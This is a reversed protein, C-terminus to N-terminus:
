GEPLEFNPDYPISPSNTPSDTAQQGPGATGRDRSILSIVIQGRVVDNDESNQRQLDLRQVSVCVHPLSLRRGRRFQILTGNSTSSPAATSTAPGCSTSAAGGGGGPLTNISNNSLSRSSCTISNTFSSLPRQTLIQTSMPTWTHNRRYYHLPSHHSLAAALPAVHCAPLSPSIPVTYSPQLPTRKSFVIPAHTSIVSDNHEDSSRDVEQDSHDSGINVDHSAVTSYRPANTNQAVSATILTSSPAGDSTITSSPRDDDENDSSTGATSSTSAVRSGSRHPPFSIAAPPPPPGFLVMPTSASVGLHNLNCPVSTAMRLNTRIRSLMAPDDGRRLPRLQAGVTTLHADFPTTCKFYKNCLFDLFLSPSTVLHVVTILLHESLAFGIGNKFSYARFDKYPTYIRTQGQHLFLVPYKNQKLQILICTDPDFSSFVIKRSGANAFVVQLIHDLNENVDFYNEMEWLDNIDLQPYKIEIDFGTNEDVVTLVKELTPFPEYSEEETEDDTIGVCSLDSSFLRMSQLQSLTLSKVPIEFLENQSKHKKKISYLAKVSFDHFIVPMKDKSLLVDFEVFDAGHKAAAAFSAITNEKLTSVQSYSAGMGRHGIDLSTDGAKKWKWHTQYTYEMTMVLGPCPKAVLFEVTIEGIPKHNFGIIPFKRTHQSEKQKFPLLHSSGIFRPSRNPEWVYFDLQFGQQQTDPMQTRFVIYNDKNYVIGYSGQIAPRCDDDSLNCFLVDDVSCPSPGDRSDDNDEDPSNCKKHDKEKLLLPKWLFLPHGPFSPNGYFCLTDLSLPTGYFCLTDLSLPTNLASFVKIIKKKFITNSYAVVLSESVKTHNRSDPSHPHPPISPISPKPILTHHSPHYPPSPFSPTTPHYPPCPFSPTTPHYPPCPFSPTTPHYPPCPFPPTTPHITHLAHSHPHPPITHLAHSNPHPPISPISPKPILTHHSPISPMPILTHHSPISPMPIPTHHSPHYPPCPFSPTTPHYPPCPFQPTTPNITHLAQSHPHPPISPISPKPILIHHSPHVSPKPILTHRSPHISPQVSYDMATCRISYTQERHKNKWMFIPNNHLRIQVECQNILWGKGVNEEGDYIGFTAEPLELNQEGSQISFHRPKINTEWKYITMGDTTDGLVQTIHGNSQSQSRQKCIFFRYHYTTNHNLATTTFWKKGSPEVTEQQMEVAKLPNWAGLLPDDGVLCVTQGHFTEVAVSFRVSVTM